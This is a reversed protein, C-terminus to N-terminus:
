ASESRDIQKVYEETRQRLAERKDEPVGHVELWRVVAEGPSLDPDFGSPTENILVVRIERLAEEIRDRRTPLAIAERVGEASRAQGYIHLFWASQEILAVEDVDADDLAARLEKMYKRLKDRDAGSLRYSEPEKRLSQALNPPPGPTAPERRRNRYLVGAATLLFAAGALPGVKSWPLDATMHAVTPWALSLAALVLLWVANQVINQRTFAARIDALLSGVIRVVTRRLAALGESPSSPPASYSRRSSRASVALAAPLKSARLRGIM